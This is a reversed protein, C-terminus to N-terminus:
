ARRGYLYGQRYEIEDALSRADMGYESLIDAVADPNDRVMTAMSQYRSTYASTNDDTSYNSWHWDSEDLEGPERSFELAGADFECLRDRLRLLYDLNLTERNTHEDAYGVSVNTCEGILDVYNASDTFTGGDDKRHNMGLMASLSDAFKDSCCRGFQHTIISQTGRRDLAICAKYGKVLEPEDHTLASSGKGGIEEGRHFVYLGPVKARIMESMLWVGAGDDAGLVDGKHAKKLHILGSKHVRIQQRGGQSHVSDTHSSFMIPSDGIRKLLNGHLDSTVGLPALHNAIFAKETKSYAPRKYSLMEVLERADPFAHLQATTM